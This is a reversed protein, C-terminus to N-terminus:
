QPFNMHASSVGNEQKSRSFSSQLDLVKQAEMGAASHKKTYPLMQKLSIILLSIVINKRIQKKLDLNLMM